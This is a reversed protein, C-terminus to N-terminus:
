LEGASQALSSNLGEVCEALRAISISFFIKQKQHLTKPPFRWLHPHKQSGEGPEPGWGMPGNDHGLFKESVLGLDVDNSGKFSKRAYRYGFKHVFCWFNTFIEAGGFGLRPQFVDRKYIAM